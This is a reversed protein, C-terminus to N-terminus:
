KSEKSRKYENYLKLFEDVVLKAFEPTYLHMDVEKVADKNNIKAKFEKVFAADAEPDYCAGGEIDLSSWGKMPILFVWPGKANNLREAIVDAAQVLEEATTRVQIRLKDMVFHKRSKILEEKDPRSGYSLHDLGSPALVQPIGMEAAATLRGPGPNRNGDFMYEVVGGISVDLVGSFLGDRIMSEMAADGIGAASCPVPMFGAEELHKMAMQTAMESPSFVSVAVLPKDTVIKAGQTAEVMGCIAGIGNIIQAKLLPNVRGMDLVTHHMTVDHPGVLGKIYQPMSAIHTIMLKPVGFPLNHMVSTSVIAGTGGGLGVVGDIEGKKFLDLTIATAGKIQNDMAADRKTRYYERVKGIPLGGREAVQECTIDGSFAPPEEMSFDLFIGRHGRAEIMDKVFAIEKGRTDLNCLILIGKKNAM